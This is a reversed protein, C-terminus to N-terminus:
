TSPHTHYLQHTAIYRAVAPHVLGDISLGRACRDRIDSSSVAIGPGAITQIRGQLSPLAEAVHHLMPADNGSRPVIVLEAYRGIQDAAYWQPLIQVADVGLLLLLQRGPRALERLTDITYSPGSRQLEIDSVVCQRIDACTLRCMDLRQDPTTAPAPKHPPTRSPIILLQDLALAAVATQAVALHGVHMPDYTGGLIGIRM